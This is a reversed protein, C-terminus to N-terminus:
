SAADVEDGVLLLLEGVDPRVRGRQREVESIWCPGPSPWSWYTSSMNVVVSPLCRATDRGLKPSTTQISMALAVLVPPASLM